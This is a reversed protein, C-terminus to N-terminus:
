EVVSFTLNEPYGGYVSFTDSRFKRILKGCKDIGLLSFSYIVYVLRRILEDFWSFSFYGRGFVLSSCDLDRYIMQDYSSPHVFKCLSSYVDRYFVADHLVNKALKSISGFGYRHHKLSVQTRVKGTEDFWAAQDLPNMVLKDGPDVYDFSLYGDSSDFISTGCFSDLYKARASNFYDAGDKTLIISKADSSESLLGQKVLLQYTPQLGLSLTTQYSSLAFRRSRAEFRNSEFTMFELEFLEESISRGVAGVSYMRHHKFLEVFDQYQQLLLSSLGLFGRLEDDLKESQENASVILNNLVGLAYDVFKFDVKYNTFVRVAM